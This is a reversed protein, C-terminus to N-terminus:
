FETSENSYVLDRAATNKRGALQWYLFMERSGDLIHHITQDTEPKSFCMFLNQFLWVYWVTCQFGFLSYMMKGTLAAFVTTSLPTLSNCVSWRRWLVTGHYFYLLLMLKPQVYKTLASTKSINLNITTTNTNLTGGVALSMHLRAM